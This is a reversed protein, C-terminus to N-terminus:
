RTTGIDSDSYSLARSFGHPRLEGVDPLHPSFLMGTLCSSVVEFEEAGISCHLGATETTGEPGGAIDATLGGRGKHSDDAQDVTASQPLCRYPWM